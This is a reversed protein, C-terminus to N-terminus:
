DKAMVERPLLDVDVDRERLVKLRHHGESLTGDPRCKLSNAHGPKLSELIADTSLKRFIELKVANLSIDPHLFKLRPNKM